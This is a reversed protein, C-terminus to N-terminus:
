ISSTFYIKIGKTLIDSLISLISNPLNGYLMVKSFKIINYTKSEQATTLLTKDTVIINTNYGTIEIVADVYTENDPQVLLYSLGYYLSYLKDNSISIATNTKYMEFNTQWEDLKNKAINVRYTDAGELASTVAGVSSGLSSMLDTNGIGQSAKTVDKIMSSWRRLELQQKDYALVQNKVSRAIAQQQTVDATQVSLPLEINFSSTIDVISTEVQMMFEVFMDTIYARISTSVSSGNPKIPIINDLMGVGYLKYNNSITYEKTYLGTNLEYLYIDTTSGIAMDDVYGKVLSHVASTYSINLESFLRLPIIYADVVEFADFNLSYDQNGIRYNYEFNGLGSSATLLGKLTNIARKITVNPASGNYATAWFTRYFRSSPEGSQTLNYFSITVLCYVANNQQYSHFSNITLADNSAYEVPLFKLNSGIGYRLNEVNGKIIKLENAYSSWIDETYDLVCTGNVISIDDIFFYRTISNVEDELKFYNYQFVGNLLFADINFQGQRTLYVEGIDNYEYKTLTALYGELYSHEIVENYEKTLRCNSYLTLKM